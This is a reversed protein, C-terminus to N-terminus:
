GQKKAPNELGKGTGRKNEFKLMAASSLKDTNVRAAYHEVIKYSQGTIAGVEAVTCGAELLANVANKRLGHPVTQAGLALTFAQLDARLRDTTLPRGQEDALITIGRKPTDALARELEGLVPVSVKRGRKQQSILIRGHRYDNWRMACVDGIRQGTFYMLHTAIRVRANDSELAAELIDEPWPEHSGIKAMAIGKTPELETLDRERAWKYLLALVKVFVNHMGPKLADLVLRLDARTLLDVPFAGLDDTIRRLLKRYLTQTGQAKSTFDTSAEYAKALAAITYAATQRRTRGAKYAAYSDFFGVAGPDPLRAYIQRGNKKTGTNFYAYLRGKSRVYKVHDLKPLRAM